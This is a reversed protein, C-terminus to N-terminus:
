TMARRRGRRTWYFILGGMLFAIGSTEPISAVVQAAPSWDTPKYLWIDGAVPDVVGAFVDLGALYEFKGLVGTFVALEDAEPNVLSMPDILSVTWGNASLLDPATLAFLNDDGDWFVFRDRIEDYVLGYGAGPVFLGGTLDIYNVIQNNNGAGATNIDYFMFGNGITRLYINRTPDYDGAGSSVVFSNWRRGLQEYTDQASDNVDNVTMKWLGAGNEIFLVDKGNQQAAATTGNRFGGGVPPINTLNNRNEWMQGGPTAPDVGSGDLGGVKNADAKSPDWFYPGTRSLSGDPNEIAFSGGTNWAAGGLTVFRDATALFAQNDYTHSSIPSNLPGDSTEYRSQSPDKLVVASPLSSRQWELTSAQWQYVENGAYNAHGGGWFILNGRNSDWAMSSWAEIVSGPSGFGGAPEQTPSIWVDNFRNINVRSWTNEAMADIAAGFPTSRFSEYFPGAAVPSATLIFTSLLAACLAGFGNKRFTLIFMELGHRGVRARNMM